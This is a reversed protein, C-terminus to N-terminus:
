QFPASKEGKYVNYPGKSLDLVGSRPWIGQKVKAVYDDFHKGLFRKSLGICEKAAEPWAHLGQIRYQTGFYPGYALAVGLEIKAPDGSAVLERYDPPAAGIDAALTNSLLPM